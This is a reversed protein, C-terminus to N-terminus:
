APGAHACTGCGTRHGALTADLQAKMQRLRATTGRTSYGALSRLIIRRGKHTTIALATGLGSASGADALDVSAIECWPIRHTWEMTRSTIGSDDIVLGMRLVRYIMVVSVVGMVAGFVKSGGPEQAIEGIAILLFVAGAVTLVVRQWLGTPIRIASTRGDTM